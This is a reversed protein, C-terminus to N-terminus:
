PPWIAAQKSDSPYLWNAKPNINIQFTTPNQLPLHWLKQPSISLRRPVYRTQAYPSGQLRGSPASKKDDHRTPFAVYYNQEPAVFMFDATHSIIATTLTGMLNGLSSEKNKM